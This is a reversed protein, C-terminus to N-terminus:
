SLFVFWSNVDRQGSEREECIESNAASREAGIESLKTARHFQEDRKDFSNDELSIFCDRIDSISM